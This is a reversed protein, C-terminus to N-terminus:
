IEAYKKFTTTLVIIYFREEEERQNLEYDVIERSETFQTYSTKNRILSNLVIAFREFTMSIREGAIDSDCLWYKCVKRQEM